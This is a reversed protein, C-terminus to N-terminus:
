DETKFVGSFRTEPASSPKPHSGRKLLMVSGQAQSLFYINMNRHEIHKMGQLTEDM